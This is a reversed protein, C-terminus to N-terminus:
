AVGKVSVASKVAAAGFEDTLRGLKFALTSELATKAAGDAQTKERAAVYAEADALARREDYEKERYKLPIAETASIEVHARVYGAADVPTLFQVRM